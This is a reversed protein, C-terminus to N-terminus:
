VAVVLEALKFVNCTAFNTVKNPFSFRIIDGRVVTFSKFSPSSKNTIVVVIFTGYLQIINRRFTFMYSYFKAIPKELDYSQFVVIYCNIEKMKIKMPELHQLIATHSPFSGRHINGLIHSGFSLPSSSRPELWLQLLQWLSLLSLVFFQQLGARGFLWHLLRQSCCNLHIYIFFYILTLINSLNITLYIYDVIVIVQSYTGLICASRCYIITGGSM